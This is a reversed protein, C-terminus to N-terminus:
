KIQLSRKKQALKQHYIIGKTLKIWMNKDIFFFPFIRVVFLYDLVGLIM